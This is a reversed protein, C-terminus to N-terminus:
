MVIQAWRPLSYVGDAYAMGVVPQPTVSTCDQWDGPESPQEGDPLTIVEAVRGSEIRAWTLPPAHIIIEDSM